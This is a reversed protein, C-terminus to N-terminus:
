SHIVLRTVFLVFFYVVSCLAATIMGLSKIPHKEFDLTWKLALAIRYLGRQHRVVLIYIWIWLTSLFVSVLPVLLEPVHFARWVFRYPDIDPLMPLVPYLMNFIVATIFFKFFCDIAFILINWYPMTKEARRFIEQMQDFFVADSRGGVLVRTTWLAVYEAPLNVFLLNGALTEISGSQGFSLVSLCVLVYSITAIITIRYFCVPSAHTPGFATEFISATDPIDATPIHAADLKNILSVLRQKAQESLTDEVTSFVKVIAPFIAAAVAFQVGLNKLLAEM